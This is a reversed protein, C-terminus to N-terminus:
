CASTGVCDDPTNGTVSSTADLTVDSLNPAAWIGGGGHAAHNGTV